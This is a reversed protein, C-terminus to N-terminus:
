GEVAVLVDGFGVELLLDADLGAMAVVAVSAATRDADRGLIRHQALAEIGVGRGLTDVIEEVAEGDFALHHRPGAALGIHVAQLRLIQRREGHLRGSEGHHRQGARLVRDAAGVHGAVSPHGFMAFTVLSLLYAWGLFGAALALPVLVAPVLGPAAFLPAASM